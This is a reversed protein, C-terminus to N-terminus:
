SKYAKTAIYMVLMGIGYGKCITVFKDFDAQSGTIKAVILIIAWVVAVAFVFIWLPYQFRKFGLRWWRVLGLLGLIIAILAVIQASTAM